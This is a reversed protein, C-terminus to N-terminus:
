PPIIYARLISIFLINGFRWLIFRGKLPNFGIFYGFGLM